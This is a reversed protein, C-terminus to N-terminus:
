EVDGSTESEADEVSSYDPMRELGLSAIYESVDPTPPPMFELEGAAVAAGVRGAAAIRSYNPHSTLAKLSAQGTEVSRTCVLVGEHDEPQLADLLAPSHTTATLSVGQEQTEKRLLGLVSAAQRPYLGNEVEEVLFMRSSVSRSALPVDVDRGLHLLTSVIALYRLTGDSMVSATTLEEQSFRERLAVMVDVATASVGPLKAEAFTIEELGAGVLGRILENLRQWAVEDERLAYVVASTTSGTREPRDGIRSYNRMLGPAPDVVFIGRLVDIVTQCDQVVQTRAKSDQPVKTLAQLTVLRSTLMTFTRPAGGSYVEVSCIGEGPGRRQAYICQRSRGRNANFYLGEWVIEPQNGSVDFGIDLEYSGQPTTITCGVQVNSTGFPAAGSLNGRLGAVTRDDRELDAVDREDALLALLSLADLANSKGSANPGVLLTLPRLPVVQDTYNKFANLRLETVRPAARTAARDVGTSTLGIAHGEHNM